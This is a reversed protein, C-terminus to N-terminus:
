KSALLNRTQEVFLKFDPPQNSLFRRVWRVMGITDGPRFGPREGPAPWVAVSQTNSGVSTPRPSPCGLARAIDNLEDFFADGKISAVRASIKVGCSHDLRFFEFVIKYRGVLPLDFGSTNQYCYVPDDPIMFIGRGMIGDLVKWGTPLRHWLWNTFEKIAVIEDKKDKGRDTFEILDGLWEEVFGEWRIPQTPKKSDKEREDFCDWLFQALSKTAPEPDTFYIGAGESALWEGLTKHFLSLGGDDEVLYSGLQARARVATERDWALVERALELPLPGPAAMVLRLLPQVTERFDARFRAEFAAHYRSHLGPLGSELTELGASQLTGESLGEAVLRLYLMM